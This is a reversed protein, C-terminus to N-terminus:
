ECIMMVMIMIMSLCVYILEVNTKLQNRLLLPLVLADKSAMALLETRQMAHLESREFDVVVPDLAGDLWAEIRRRISNPLWLADDFSRQLTSFATTRRAEHKSRLRHSFLQRLFAARKTIGSRQEFLRLLSASFLEFDKRHVTIGITKNKRGV